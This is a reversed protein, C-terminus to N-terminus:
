THKGTVGCELSMVEVGSRSSFTRKGMEGQLRIMFILIRYSYLSYEYNSLMHIPMVIM